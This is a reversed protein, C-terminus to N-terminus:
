SGGRAARALQAVTASDVPRLVSVDFLQKRGMGIIANPYRKRLTRPDGYKRAQSMPILTPPLSARVAALEARLERLEVLVPALATTVEAALDIM